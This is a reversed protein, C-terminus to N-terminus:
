DGVIKEIKGMYRYFDAQTVKLTHQFDLEDCGTISLKRTQM